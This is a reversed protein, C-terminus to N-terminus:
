GGGSPEASSPAYRGGLAASTIDLRVTFQVRGDQRTADGLFPNALGPVGGLADVYAASANEDGGSATVTLTGIQRDQGASPLQGTPGGASTETSSLLTGFAGTVLVGDPAAAQLARVLGSWPLDDALVEALQRTIMQSESQAEIVDSFARQQETLRQTIEQAQDFHDRAVATSYRAHGYWAAVLVIVGALVALVTRRVARQRRLDLVETPLLNAVVAPIRLAPDAGAKTEAPEATM